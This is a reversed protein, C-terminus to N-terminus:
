TQLYKDCLMTNEVRQIGSKTMALCNAAFLCSANTVRKSTVPMQTTDVKQWLSYHLQSMEIYSKRYCM